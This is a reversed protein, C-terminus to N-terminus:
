ASWDQLIGRMAKEAERFNPQDCNEAVVSAYALLKGLPENALVFQLPGHWQFRFTVQTRGAEMWRLSATVGAVHMEDKGIDFTVITAM